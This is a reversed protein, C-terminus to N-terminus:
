AGGELAAPVVSEPEAAPMADLQDIEDILQALHDDSLGSVGVISM